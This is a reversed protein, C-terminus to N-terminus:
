LAHFSSLHSFCSVVCTRDPDYYWSAIVDSSTQVSITTDICGKSIDSATTLGSLTVNFSDVLTDMAIAAGATTIVVSTSTTAGCMVSSSGAAKVVYCAPTVFPVFFGTPYTLTITSGPPLLRLLSPTFAVNVSVDKRNFARDSAAISVNVFISSTPLGVLLNATLLVFCIYCLVSAVQWKFLKAEKIPSSVEGPNKFVDFAVGLFFFITFVGVFGPFIIIAAMAGYRFIPPMGLMIGMSLGLECAFFAAAVVAYKVPYKSVDQTPYIKWHWFWMVIAPICVVLVMMSIVDGLWLGICMSILAAAVSVVRWIEGRVYPTRHVYLLLIIPVFGFFSNIAALDSQTMM